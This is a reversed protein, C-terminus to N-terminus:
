GTPLASSGPTTASSRWSPRLGPLLSTTSRRCGASEPTRRFWSRQRCAFRRTRRIATDLAADLDLGSELHQILEAYGLAQRATRSM